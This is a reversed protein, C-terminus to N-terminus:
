SSRRTRFDDNWISADPIYVTIVYCNDTKKDVAAVVHVPRKDVFGLILISPFPIDGPYEEIMEAQTVVDKVEDPSIAREFM